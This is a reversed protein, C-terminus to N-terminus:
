YEKFYGVKGDVWLITRGKGSLGIYEIRPVRYSTDNAQLTRVLGAVKRREDEPLKSIDEFAKDEPDRVTDPELDTWVGSPRFEYMHDGRTSPRVKKKRDVDWSCATDAAKVAEDWTVFKREALYSAPVAGFPHEELIRAVAEALERDRQGAETAAWEEKSAETAAAEGDDPEVVPESPQSKKKPEGPYYYVGVKFRVLQGKKALHELSRQVEERTAEGFGAVVEDITYTVGPDGSLWELIKAHRGTRAAM